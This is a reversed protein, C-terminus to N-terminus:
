NPSTAPPLLAKSYQYMMDIKGDKNFRWSEQIGVSDIKGQKDTTVETGWICVWNDKKDTSKLPFVVHVTSKVSTFINRYMQGGALTSDTPGDSKSGDRLYFRMSDAFYKRGAQLNGDDWAKWVNMLSAVNKADGMEFASSYTPKYLLSDAASSGAVGGKTDAGKKEEANCAFLFLALVAILTKQM